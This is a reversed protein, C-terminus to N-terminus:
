TAQEKAQNVQALQLAACRSDITARASDVTAEMEVKQRPRGWVRDLITAAAKLRVNPDRATRSLTVLTEVAARIDKERESWLQNELRTFVAPKRGAGPRKGGHQKPKPQGPKLRPVLKPKPPQKKPM